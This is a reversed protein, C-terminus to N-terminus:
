RARLDASSVTAARMTDVSICTVCARARAHHCYHDRCWVFLKEDVALKVFHGFMQFAFTHMTYHHSRAHVQAVRAHTHTGNNIAHAPTLLKEIDGCSLRLNTASNTAPLLLLGPATISYSHGLTRMHTHYSPM